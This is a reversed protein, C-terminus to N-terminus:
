DAPVVTAWFRTRWQVRVPLVSPLTALIRGTDALPFVGSFRLAAIRPDVRLVGSRYRELEALFDDLRQEDAVLQGRAWADAHEGAPRPPEIADRSFRTQEGARLLRTTGSAAWPAIEVASELVAVRTHGARQSVTFRTGLSRITGEATAVLLPRADTQAPGHRTAIMIEGAVLLIRRERADFRLNVASNTNLTLQTGDELTLDRREGTGTRLDATAAQWTGTRTAFLGAGTAIGGWLLLRTARRRAASRPQGAAGYSSLAAYAPARELSKVRGTFAELHQWAAEHDAHAQRWERWQRQQEDNAEGSMLLTLWDAAADATARSILRGGPLTLTDARAAM